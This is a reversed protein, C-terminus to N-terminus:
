PLGDSLADVIAPLERFGKLSPIKTESLYFFDLNGIKTAVDFEGLMMDLMLFGIQPLAQEPLECRLYLKLDLKNRNQMGEFYIDDFGFSNGAIELVLEQQLRPKLATIVWRPLEPATECLQFVIPFADRMGNATIILEKKGDALMVSFEFGLNENLKHLERSLMEFLEDQRDGMLEMQYFDAENAQFWQWFAAIKNEM